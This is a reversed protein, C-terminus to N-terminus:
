LFGPNHPMAIDNGFESSIFLGQSVVEFVKYFKSNKSEEKNELLESAYVEFMVTGLPVNKIITLRFDDKLSQEPLNQMFPTPRFEVIYPRTFNEIHQGSSDTQAFATPPLYLGTLKAWSPNINTRSDKNIQAATKDFETVFKKLFGAPPKLNNSFTSSFFTNPNDKEDELRSIVALNLAQGDAPHNNSLYDRPLKISVSPTLPGEKIGPASSFRLLAYDTGTTFFGTFPHDKDAYTTDLKIPATIGSQRHTAKRRDEKLNSRDMFMNWRMGPNNLSSADLALNYLRSLFHPDQPLKKHKTKQTQELYYNLEDRASMLSLNDNAKEAKNQHFPCSALSIQPLVTAISILWSTALLHMKM